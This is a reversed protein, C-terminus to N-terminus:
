LGTTEKNALETTRQKKFLEKNVVEKKDKNRKHLKGINYTLMKVVNTDENTIM